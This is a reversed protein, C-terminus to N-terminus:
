AMYIVCGADLRGKTHAPFIMAVGDMRAWSAVNKVGDEFTIRWPDESIFVFKQSLLPSLKLAASLFSAAIFEIGTM